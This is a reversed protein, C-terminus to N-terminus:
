SVSYLPNFATMSPLQLALLCHESRHWRWGADGPRSEEIIPYLLPRSVYKQYWAPFVIRASRKPRIMVLGPRVLLEVQFYDLIIYLFATQLYVRFEQAAPGQFPFSGMVPRRSAGGATQPNERAPTKLANIWIGDFLIRM